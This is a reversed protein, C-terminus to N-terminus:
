ANVIDTIAAHLTSYHGLGECTNIRAPQKLAASLATAMAPPAWNDEDGQWITVECAVAGLAHAWPKVYALLERRYAGQRPGFCQRLGDSIATIFRPNRALRQDSEPAGKFMTELLLQPQVLMLAAQIATLARLALGGRQATEFVPRGAMAPLFDGLELPAAPSILILNRVRARRQAAIQLASMAGLSFGVLTVPESPATADFAGLVAAEHTAAGFSLRDLAIINRRDGLDLGALEAPSGPLGHCYLIPM